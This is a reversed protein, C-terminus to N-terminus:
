RSEPTLAFRALRRTGRIDLLVVFFSDCAAARPPHMYPKSAIAIPWRRRRSSRRARVASAVAERLAMEDVTAEATAFLAVERAIGLLASEETSYDISFALRLLLLPVARLRVPWASTLPAPLGHLWLTGAADGRLDIAFYDKLMPRWTSLVDLATATVEEETVGRVLQNRLGADHRLAFRILNEV